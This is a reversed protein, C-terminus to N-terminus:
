KSVKIQETRPGLLLSLDSLFTPLFPTADIAPTTPALSQSQSRTESVKTAHIAKAMEHKQSIRLILNFETRTM